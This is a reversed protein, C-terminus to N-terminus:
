TGSKRILVVEWMLPGKKIYKWEFEVKHEEKLLYYLPKPDHDVVLIVGENFNLKLVRTIIQQHRLHSPILRVDITEYSRM